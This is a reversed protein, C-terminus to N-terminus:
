SKSSSTQDNEGDSWINMSPFSNTGGLVFAEHPPFNGVVHGSSFIPGLVLGKRARANLRSFVLSESWVSLGSEHQFCVSGTNVTGLKALSMDNHTNSSGTLPSIYYDRIIPNGKDDPAGARQSIRIPLVLLLLMLLFPFCFYTLCIQTTSTTTSGTSSSSPAMASAIPSLKDGNGDSKSVCFCGYIIKRNGKMNDEAINLRFLGFYGHRHNSVIKVM